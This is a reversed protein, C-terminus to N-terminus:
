NFRYKTEVSFNDDASIVVSSLPLSTVLVAFTAPMEEKPRTSVRGTLNLFHPASKCANKFGDM